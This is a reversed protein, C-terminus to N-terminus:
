TTSKSEKRRENTRAEKQMEFFRDPCHQTIAGVLRLGQAREGEKFASSLAEGTFTQRYIGSEGLLRWMFRRGRKDSMLWLLDDIEAQAALQAKLAKEAAAQNDREVASV